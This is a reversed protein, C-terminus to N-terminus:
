TPEQKHKNDYTPKKCNRHPKVSRIVCFYMDFIYYLYAISEVCHFEFLKVWCFM